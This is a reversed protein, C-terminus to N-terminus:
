KLLTVSRTQQLGPAIMRIMYVGSSLGSGDFRVSHDGAPMFENVLTSVNRGLMDYVQITVNSSAALQFPVVTSPNFPNPYASNLRFTFPATGGQEASTSVDGWTLLIRGVLSLEDNVQKFTFGFLNGYQLIMEMLDNEDYSYDEAYVHILGDTAGELVEDEVFISFSVPNGNEAFGLVFDSSTVWEDSMEDYFELLISRASTANNRFHTSEGTIQRETAIWSEETDDWEYSIYDPLLELFVYSRGDEIYDVFEIFSNYLEALSVESYIYQEYNIWEDLSSDYEQVTEIIDGSLEEFSTREYLEWQDDEWIEDLIETLLGNEITVSSREENVWGQEASAWTQYEVMQVFTEGALQQYTYLTREQLVPEGESIDQYINATLNDGDYTYIVKSDLVWDSTPQALFYELRETRKGSQYINETKLYSQWQDETWLQAEIENIQFNQNTSKFYQLQNQGKELLKFTEILPHDPVLPINSKNHSQSFASSIVVSFLLVVTFLQTKM